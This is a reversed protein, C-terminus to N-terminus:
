LKLRKGLRHMVVAAACVVFLYVSMQPSVLLDSLVTASTRTSRVLAFAISMPQFLTRVRLNIIGTCVNALLFVGLSNYNIATVVNGGGVALSGASATSANASPALLGSWRLPHTLLLAAFLYSTLLILNLSVAGLM